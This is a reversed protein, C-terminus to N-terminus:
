QGLKAAMPPASKNEASGDCGCRGSKHTTERRSASGTTLELAVTYTMTGYTRRLSVLRGPKPFNQGARLCMMTYSMPVCCMAVRGHTRLRVHLETSIAGCSMNAVGCPLQCCARGGHKPFAVLCGVVACAVAQVRAEHSATLYLSPSPAFHHLLLFLMCTGGISAKHSRNVRIGSVVRLFATQRWLCGGITNRPCAGGSRYM